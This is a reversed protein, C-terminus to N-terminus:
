VAAAGVAPWRRALWGPPRRGPLDRRLLVVILAGTGVFLAVDTVNDRVLHVVSACLVIGLAPGPRARRPGPPRETGAPSSGPMRRRSRTMRMGRTVGAPM